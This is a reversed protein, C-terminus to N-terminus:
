CVEVGEERCQVRNDIVEILPKQGLVLRATRASPRLEGVALNQSQHQASLPRPFRLPPEHRVDGFMPSAVKGPHESLASEVPAASVQCPNHYTQRCHRRLLQSCMGRCILAYVANGYRRHPATAALAMTQKTIVGGNSLSPAVPIEVVAAFKQKPYRGFPHYGAERQRRRTGFVTPNRLAKQAPSGIRARLRVFRGVKGAEVPAIALLVHSGCARHPGPRCRAPGAGLGIKAVVAEEAFSPLFMPTFAIPCGHECGFVITSGPGLRRSSLMRAPFLHYLGDVAVKFTYEAKVEGASAALPSQEATYGGLHGGHVQADQQISEVSTGIQCDGCEEIASSRIQMVREIPSSQPSPSKRPGEGGDGYRTRPLSQDEGM